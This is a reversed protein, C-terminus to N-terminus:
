AGTRQALRALTAAAWAKAEQANKPAFEKQAKGNPPTVQGATTRSLAAKTASQTAFSKTKNVGMAKLYAEGRAKVFAPIDIGPANEPVGSLYLHAEAKLASIMHEVTAPDQLGSAAALDVVETVFDRLIEKQVVQSQVAQHQRQSQLAVLHNEASRLQRGLASKERELRTDSHAIGTWQRLLTKLEREALLKQQALQPKQFEDALRLQGELVAIDTKASDIESILSRRQDNNFQLEKDLAAIEGQLGQIDPDQDFAPGTQQPAMLHTKIEELDKKLKSVSNWSEYISDAALDEDGNYKDLIKQLKASRGTPSQEGEALTSEESKNSDDAAQSAETTAAAEAEVTEQASTTEADEDGVQANLQDALVEAPSKDPM